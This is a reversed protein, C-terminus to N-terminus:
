ISERKEPIIKHEALIIQKCIRGTSNVEGTLVVKHEMSYRIGLVLYCLFVNVLFGVTIKGFLNKRLDQILVFVVLTLLIFFCSVFVAAPYFVGTFKEAALGPRNSLPNTTINDLM